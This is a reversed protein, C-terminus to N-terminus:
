FGGGCSSGSSTDCSSSSHSSGSDYSSSSSHSSSGGDHSSSSHSSSSTGCDDSRSPPPTYVPAYLVADRAADYTPTTPRPMSTPASRRPAPAPTADAKKEPKKKFPNRITM